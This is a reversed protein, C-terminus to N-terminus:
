NGKELIRKSISVARDPSGNRKREMSFGTPPTDRKEKKEYQSFFDGGKRKKGEGWLNFIHCSSGNGGEKRGLNEACFVVKKPRLPSIIM